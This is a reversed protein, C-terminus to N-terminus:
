SVGQGETYLSGKAAGSSGSFQNVEQARLRTIDQQAQAASVGGINSNFQAATLENGMKEAGMGYMSALQQQQALQSGITAFGAQAQQQTVGQAALTMANQQNLALNQRAAEASTQTAAFQQQIIPLATNPDLFHAILDGKNLGYQQSATQLLYPDSTTALDSAMNVYQQLTTTGINKGILNAFFAQTQYQPGVGAENLIQSYNQEALLYSAPDYASLGNAVRAANGSFRAAYAKSNQITLAITDPQAGQQALTTIQKMLDASNPDNANLIGWNILQQQAAALYDTVTNPNITTGTNGTGGTGTGTTTGTPGAPGGGGGAGAVATPFDKYLIPNGDSGLTQGYHTGAPAPHAAAYAAITAAIKANTSLPTAPTATKAPTTATAATAIQREMQTDTMAPTTETTGTAIQREMQVDTMAPAPATVTPTAAAAKAAAQARQLAARESPDLEDILAM